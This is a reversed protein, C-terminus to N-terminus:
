RMSSRMLREKERKCNVCLTTEPFIELREPEITKGCNECIGYSGDRAQEIAHEIDRLKYELAVILAQTKDREILDSAADDVDDHEIEASLEARLHQLEVQTHEKEQELLEIQSKATKKSMTRNSWRAPWEGADDKLSPYNPAFKYWLHHFIYLRKKFKRGPHIKKGPQLAKLVHAIISM